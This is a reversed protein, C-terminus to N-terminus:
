FIEVLYNHTIELESTKNIEKKLYYNFANNCPCQVIANCDNFLFHVNCFNLEEKVIVIPALLAYALRM